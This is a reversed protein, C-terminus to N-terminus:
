KIEERGQVLNLLRTASITTAHSSNKLGFRGSKPNYKGLIGEIFEKGSEDIVRIKIGPIFGM